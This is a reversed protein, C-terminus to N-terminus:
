RPEGGNEHHHGDESEDADDAAPVAAGQDALVGVENGDIAFGVASSRGLSSMTHQPQFIITLYPSEAANNCALLLSLVFLGTFIKHFYKQIHKM